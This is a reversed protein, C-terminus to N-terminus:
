SFRSELTAALAELEPRPTTLILMYGRGSRQWFVINKGLREEFQPAADAQGNRIICFAVPGDRDSLYAIQALPMGRLEFIQARKLTLGALVVKASDLQLGLKDGASPLEIAQTAADDPIAALTDTTYLQLYDAVVARWNPTETEEGGGAITPPSSPDILSPLVTGAAAGMIFLAIGAAILALQNQGPRRGAQAEAVALTETLRATPAADLLLAFAPGFDRGSHQLEELRVRLAQDTALRSEVAARGAADLEGDIYAVLEADRPPGLGASDIMTAVESHHEGLCAAGNRPSTELKHRDPDSLM